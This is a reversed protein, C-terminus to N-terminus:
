WSPDASRSLPRKRVAAAPSGGTGSASSPTPRSASVAAEGLVRALYPDGHGTSGKGKKKGASEKVGPAFKAWSALHGPTPFRSMDIGIEAIVAAAAVPGIGPVEDLRAVAAVFPAVLEEIKTDLDAIDASIQDVRALMKGLLFAHHDTFHGTFAEELATIKARMRARTLQALVKPDRQGAILAAMMARGSVGFIDTAVVSLKIQADELLKEARQKEATRAAVLDIRYGSVDRLQRIQRRRSSVPGSCRGSRSRACGSLM